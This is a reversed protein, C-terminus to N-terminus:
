LFLYLSISVSMDTEFLNWFQKTNGFSHTKLQLHFYNKMWYRNNVKSTVTINVVHHVSTVVTGSLETSGEIRSGCASSHVATISTDYCSYTDSPDYLQFDLHCESSESPCGFPLSFTVTFTASSGRRFSLFHTSIQLRVM